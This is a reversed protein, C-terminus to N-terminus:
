FKDETKFNLAKKYDAPQKTKLDQKAQELRKEAEKVAPEDGAIKAKKVAEEARDIVKIVKKVEREAFPVITLLRNRKHQRKLEVFNFKMVKGNIRITGSKVGFDKLFKMHQQKTLNRLTGLKILHEQLVATKFYLKGNTLYVLGELLQDRRLAQRTSLFECVKEIWHAKDSLGTSIDDDEEAVDKLAKNVINLWVNEKLRNPIHNLKSGCLARFRDQKILDNIGFLTFKTDNVEWIYYEDEDDGKFRTLQGFEFDSIYQGGVGFKRSGCEDKNCYPKLLGSKCAYSYDRKNLSAIVTTDIEVYDLPELTNNNLLHLNEAFAEGFRAKLYVGCNLMFANREGEPAGGELYITQICPPAQAMPVNDLATKLAKPTTRMQLCHSIATTLPLAGGDVSYAHRVTDKANFYPLNIWNGKAGAELQTQKPFIETNEPLGLLRRVSNVLPVVETAKAPPDFFCYLHLGKSKSSFGVFPLKAKQLMTLYKVPNLPYEDVDIAAFSVKGEKTIPVIGLSQEGHLHKLYANEPLPKVVSISEGKVKKGDKTEVKPPKFIGYNDKNGAFLSAFDDVYQRFQNM